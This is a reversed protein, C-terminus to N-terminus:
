ERFPKRGRKDVPFVRVLGLGCDACIVGGDPMLGVVGGMPNFRHSSGLTYHFASKGTTWDTGELTWERNRVGWSYLIGNARSLMPTACSTAIQTRWATDLTRERPHWEIKAGGRAAHGPVHMSFATALWKKSPTDAELLPKRNGDFDSIYCQEFYAGYGAVTPAVEVQLPESESVGFRIPTVGAVRRAQGPIGKWDAPIGDRWVAMANNKVEGDSFIVLHDEDAGWGMVVPTTGSGRGSGNPYRLQWAGDSEKLSLQSGTWQVRYLYDRSVVYIGDRDDTSIGNRVFTDFIDENRAAESSSKASKLREGEDSAPLKIATYTSLDQPLAILYGDMTALVVSGSATLSMGCITARTLEPPLKWERRLRIRSRRDGPREDGYVRISVLGDSGRYPIYLENGDSILRYVTNTAEWPELWLKMGYEVLDKDGLADMAAIHREIESEGFYTKEGLSRTALVELTVPDVKAIRDYGGVWMVQRGDPYPSSLLPEFSNVPGTGAFKVEDARLRRGPGAPGAVASSDGYPHAMPYSSNALHPNLYPGAPADPKGAAVSSSLGGTLLLFFVASQGLRSFKGDGRKM